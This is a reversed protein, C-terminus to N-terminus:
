LSVFTAIVLFFFFSLVPISQVEFSMLRGTSGETKKIWTYEKRHIGLGQHLIIHQVWNSMAGFTVVHLVFLSKPRTEQMESALLFPSLLSKYQEKNTLM